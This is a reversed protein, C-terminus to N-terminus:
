AIENLNTIYEAPIWTKVLVEAQHQKKEIPNLDFYGRHFLDFRLSNLFDVTDSNTHRRDAANMDSFRTNEFYCVEISVKLLFPRTIRVENIAVHKMPHDKIFSLRVFDELGFELDLSRGLSSNGTMPIVINNRDCYFWSYLGGNEKISKLNSYDTFHYLTTINNEQLVKQFDRWNSKKNLLVKLKNEKEFKKAEEIKRKAEAQEIAIRQKEIKIEEEIRIREVEEQQQRLLEEQRKKFIELEKEKLKAIAKSLREIGKKYDPKISKSLRNILQKADDLKNQGILSELNNLEKKINNEYIERQRIKEQERTKHLKLASKESLLRELQKFDKDFSSVTLNSLEIKDKIKNKGLLSYLKKIREDLLKADPYSISHIQSEIIQLNVKQKELKHLELELEHLEYLKKKSKKKETPFSIIEENYNIIQEAVRQQILKVILQEKEVLNECDQIETILKDQEVADILIEEAKSIIEQETPHSKVFFKKIFKWFNIFLGM